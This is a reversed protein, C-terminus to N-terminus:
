TPDAVLHPRPTLVSLPDSTTTTRATGTIPQWTSYGDVLFQGTWGTTLTLRHTGAARYTHTITAHPYRAGPDTTSVPATDDDFDWTFTSPTARVSVGVGLVTTRLTQTPNATFVITPVNALTWGTPPEIGITSPVLPLRQLDAATIAPFGADGPCTSSGAVLLWPTWGSAAAPDVTRRWLPSLGVLGSACVARAVPTAGGPCDPTDLTGLAPNPCQASRVFAVVADAASSNSGSPAERNSAVGAVAYADGDAEGLIDPAGYAAAGSWVLGTAVLATWLFRVPSRPM